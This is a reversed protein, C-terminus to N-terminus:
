SFKANSFDMEPHQSMFNELIKQKNEEDSTPLGMAKQRQDYMMKEVMGRTDGDLDSLNTNEPEISQVDIEPHGKIVCSWWEQSTTKYLEIQWICDSKNVPKYLDGDIYVTNLTKNKVTLHTQTIKIDLDKGRVPKETKITVSVESLTQTWTYPLSPDSNVKSSKTM